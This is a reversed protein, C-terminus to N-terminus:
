KKRGGSMRFLEHETMVRFFIGNKKCYIEAATWKATNIALAIKDKRSKALEVRAEKAPKIEIMEVHQKENKDVYQVMFDPIYRHWKGTFPNQYPIQIIESGWAVISAHEDCIRMFTIEWSSRYQILGKNLCKSPNKPTFIGQHFKAM